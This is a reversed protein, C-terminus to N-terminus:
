TNVFEVRIGFIKIVLPKGELSLAMHRLLVRFFSQEIACPRIGV